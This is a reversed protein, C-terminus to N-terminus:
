PGKGTEELLAPLGGLDVRIRDGLAKEFWTRQVAPDMAKVILVRGDPALDWPRGPWLHEYPAELLKEPRGLSLGKASSGFRVRFLGSRGGGPALSWYLIASGDGSWIPAVGGGASVQQSAGDGELPRVFVETRGPETSTYVLWRGDPSIDPHVEWFQSAVLPRAGKGRELLWIDHKTKRDFVRFALVRGDRSWAGPSSYLSAEDQRLTEVEESGADVRRSYIRWPGEHDSQFTIRGPGPGWVAWRPNMGFTVNRRAGRALDLVELQREPYAYQVLLRGGDPSLRGGVFPATM